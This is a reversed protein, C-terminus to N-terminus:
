TLGWALLLADFALISALIRPSAGRLSPHAMASGDLGRAALGIEMRGARDLARPLLGAGLRGLSLLTSKVDRYGLRAAQAAQMAAATKMLLVLQRYILLMVEALVGLGPLRALLAALHSVPTTFALWLMWLSASFARLSVRVAQRLGDPGIALWPFDPSPSLALGVAGAALFGLPLGAWGLFLRPRLRAWVLAALLAALGTVLAWPWPPLLLSLGIGSAAVALKEGPPRGALRGEFAIRDILM